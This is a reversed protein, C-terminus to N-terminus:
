KSPRWTKSGVLEANDYMRKREKKGLSNPDMEHKRRCKCLVKRECKGITRWTHEGCGCLKKHWCYKAPDYVASRLVIGDIYMRAKEEAKQGAEDYDYFLVLERVDLTHLLKVQDRSVSSGFQAVAPRGVDDLAIADTSGEVLACKHGEIRWSGFLSGKRDFNEPYIYRPFVNVGPLRQIVGLLEGHPNRYPITHRDSLPDYGLGWREITEESFGRVDTWYDDPFAYRALTREELVTDGKGAKKNRMRLRDLRARIHEASIVPDSYVGGLKKVLAKANGKADCRFCVWLGSEINFQLSTGGACFPCVCMFEEQGRVKPDLYNEAIDEFRAAM